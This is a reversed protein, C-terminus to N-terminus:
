GLSVSCLKSVFVAVNLLLHHFLAWNSCTALWKQSKLLRNIQALLLIHTMPNGFSSIGWRRKGSLIWGRCYRQHNVGGCVYTILYGATHTNRWNFCPSVDSTRRGESSDYLWVSFDSWCWKVRIFGNFSWYFCGTCLLLFCTLSFSPLLSPSVSLSLCFSSLVVVSETSCFIDSAECM